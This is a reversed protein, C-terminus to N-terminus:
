KSLENDNKYQETKKYRRKQRYGYTIDKVLEENELGVGIASVITTISATAWAVRLYQIFASGNGLDDNIESQLYDIPIIITCTIFFLFYLVIYYTLVDITLTTVTVTNYLRRLIPENRTSPREWLNHAIILWLILGFIAALMIALLRYISFLQGLNWITPFILAFAGTTFAVTTVNKFSTMIRLPNNAITMGFILKMKGRIRPYVLYRVDINNDNIEYSYNRKDGKKPANKQEDSHFEDKIFDLNSTFYIDPNDQRRIPMLPFIRKLFHTTSTETQKEKANSNYLKPKDNNNHHYLESLLQTIVKKIRRKIPLFGFAPISIQAVQYYFSIDAAVIEKHYFIPLDTLCIAYDWEKKRKISAASYLIDQAAEAAGTLPDIIQEVQWDMKKDIQQSFINELRQLSKDALKTAHEPASIIGIKMVKNEVM